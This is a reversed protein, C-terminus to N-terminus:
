RGEGRTPARVAAKLKRRAKRRLRRKENVDPGEHPDSWGRCRLDTAEQEARKM